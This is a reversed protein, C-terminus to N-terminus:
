LKQKFNIVIGTGSRKIEVEQKAINAFGLILDLNKATLSGKYNVKAKVLQNDKLVVKVTAKKKDLKFEHALQKEVIQKEM